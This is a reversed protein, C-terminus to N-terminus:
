RSPNRPPVLERIAQAIATGDRFKYNKGNLTGGLEAADALERLEADSFRENAAKRKRVRAIKRIRDFTSESFQPPPEAARVEAIIESKTWGGPKHRPRQRSAARSEDNAAADLKGRITAALQRVYYLTDTAADLIDNLPEKMDSGFWDDLNAFYGPEDEKRLEIDMRNWSARERAKDEWESLRTRVSRVREVLEASDAVFGATQLWRQTTDLRNASNSRTTGFGPAGIIDAFRSSPRTGYYELQEPLQLYDFFSDKRNSDVIRDLADAIPDLGDTCPHWPQSGV